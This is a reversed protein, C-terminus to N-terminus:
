AHEFGRRVIGGTNHHMGTVCQRLAPDSVGQLRDLARAPNVPELLEAEHREGEGAQEGLQGEAVEATSGGVGAVQRVQHAHAADHARGRREAQTLEGGGAALVVLGHGVVLARTFLERVGALAHPQGPAAAERPDDCPAPLDRGGGREDLLLEGVRAGEVLRVGHGVRQAGLGRDRRRTVAHGQEVLRELHQVAGTRGPELRLDPGIERAPDQQELGVVGGPGDVQQATRLLVGPLLVETRQEGADAPQELAESLRGVALQGAPQGLQAGRLTPNGLEHHDALAVALDGGLEADAHLRDLPVHRVDQALERDRRARLQGFGQGLWSL